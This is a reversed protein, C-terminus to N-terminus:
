NNLLLILNENLFEYKQGIKLKRRTKFKEFFLSFLRSVKGETLAFALVKVMDVM